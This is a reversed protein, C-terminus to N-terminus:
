FPYLPWRLGLAGAYFPVLELRWELIPLRYETAPVRAGVHAYPERPDFASELEAPLVMQEQVYVHTDSRWLAWMVHPAGTSGRYATVLATSPAGQVLRWVGMKWQREYDVESWHALDVLFVLRERGVVLVGGAHPWGDQSTVRPTTIHIRFM